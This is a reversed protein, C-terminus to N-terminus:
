EFPMRSHSKRVIELFNSGLSYSLPRKIFLTMAIETIGRACWERFRAHSRSDLTADTAHNATRTHTPDHPNLGTTDLTHAGLIWRKEVVVSGTYGSEGTVADGGYLQHPLKM